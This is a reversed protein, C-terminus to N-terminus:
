LSFGTNWIRELKACNGIRSRKTRKSKEILETNETPRFIGVGGAEM